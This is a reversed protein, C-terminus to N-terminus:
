GVGVFSVGSLVSAEPTEKHWKQIALSEMVICRDAPKSTEYASNLFIKLFDISV